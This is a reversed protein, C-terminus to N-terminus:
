ACCAVSAKRRMMLRSQGLKPMSLAPTERMEPDEKISPVKVIDLTDSRSRGPSAKGVRYATLDTESCGFLYTEVSLTSLASGSRLYDDGETNICGEHDQIGLSPLVGLLQEVQKQCPANKGHKSLASMATGVAKEAGDCWRHGLQVNWVQTQWSAERLQVLSAEQEREEDDHRGTLGSCEDSDPQGEDGWWARQSSLNCTKQSLSPVKIAAVDPLSADEM